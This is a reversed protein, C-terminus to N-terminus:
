FGDDLSTWVVVQEHEHPCGGKVELLNLVNVGSTYNM